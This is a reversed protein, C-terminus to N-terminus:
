KLARMNAVARLVRQRRLAQDWEIGLGGGWELGGDVDDGVALLWCGGVLRWGAGVELESWSTEEM